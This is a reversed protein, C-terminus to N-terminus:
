DTHEVADAGWDATAKSDCHQRVRADASRCCLGSSVCEIKRITLLRGGMLSLADANQAFLFKLSHQANRILVLRRGNGM